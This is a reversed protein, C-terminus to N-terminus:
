IRGSRLISMSKDGENLLLDLASLYPIFEGYQQTYTPHKYQHYCLKIGNDEFSNDGDLYVKSGVTSLYTDAGVSKCINILLEVKRGPVNLASSRLLETKIGLKEKFWNILEITFESLYTRKIQMIKSFEDFEKAYHKAKAYYCQITKLHKEQVNQTQDIMVESITQERKGKSFVPITLMLEGNPSKIRNRQQWSRKDYQVSDLLIFTDSQDMLDFYGLWPLYTPQMIVATKM